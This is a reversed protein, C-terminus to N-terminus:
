CVCESQQKKAVFVCSVEVDPCERKFDVVFWRYTFFLSDAERQELGRMLEADQWALHDRVLQMAQQTADAEATDFRTRAFEMYGVFCHFALAENGHFLPLMPELIDSMGQFYGPYRHLYVYAQLIRQM